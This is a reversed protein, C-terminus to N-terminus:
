ILGRKQMSFIILEAAEDISFRSTNIVLDYYHPDSVETFFYDKIFADRENEMQKVLKESE